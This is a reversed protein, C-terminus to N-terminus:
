PKNSQVTLSFATPYETTVIQFHYDDIDLERDTPKSDPSTKGLERLISVTFIKPKGQFLGAIVAETAQWFLKTEAPAGDLEIQELAFQDSTYINLVTYKSLNYIQYKPSTTEEGNGSLRLKKNIGVISKNFRRKFSERTIGMGPTIYEQSLQEPPITPDAVNRLFLAQQNQISKFSYSINGSVTSYDDLDESNLRDLFSQDDGNAQMQLLMAAAVAKSYTPGNGVINLHLLLRSGKLYEGIVTGTGDKFDYAFKQSSKYEGLSEMPKLSPLKPLLQDLTFSLGRPAQSEKSEASTVEQATEKEVAEEPKSQAITQQSDPQQTSETCRSLAYLVFCIAGLFGALM